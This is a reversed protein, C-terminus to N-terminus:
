LISLLPFYQVACHWLVIWVSFEIVLQQLCVIIDLPKNIYEPFTGDLSVLM